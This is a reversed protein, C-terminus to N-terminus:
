PALVMYKTGDLEEIRRAAEQPTAKKAFVESIIAAHQRMGYTYANGPSGIFSKHPLWGTEKGPELKPEGMFEVAGAGKPLIWLPEDDISSVARAFHPTIVPMHWIYPRRDDITLDDLQSGVFRRVIVSISTPSQFRDLANAIATDLTKKTFANGETAKYLYLVAALQTGERLRLRSPDLLSTNSIEANDLLTPFLDAFTLVIKELLDADGQAMDVLTPADNDPGRLLAPTTRDASGYPLWSLRKRVEAKMQEPTLNAQM